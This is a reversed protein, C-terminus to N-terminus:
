TPDQCVSWFSGPKDWLRCVQPATCDDNGVCSEPVCTKVGDEWMDRCTSGPAVSPARCDDDTECRPRTEYPPWGPYSCEGVSIFGGDPTALDCIGGGHNCDSDKGWCEATCRMRGGDAVIEDCGLPRGEPSTEDCDTVYEDQDDFFFECESWPVGSHPEPDYVTGTSSNNTSTTGNNTATTTGNNTAGNNGPAAGPGDDGCGLVCGCIMVVTTLVLVAKM